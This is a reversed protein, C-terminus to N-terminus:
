NKRVGPSFFEDLAGAPDEKALEENRKKLQKAAYDRSEQLNQIQIRHFKVMSSLVGNQKELKNVRFAHWLVGLLMGIGSVLGVITSTM